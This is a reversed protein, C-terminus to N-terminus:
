QLGDLDANPLYSHYIKEFTGDKKMADLTSQWQLYVNKSTDKSISIYFYTQMVTFVPNIDDMAYGANQVIQSVTLDTFISLNADGKVLQKVNDEPSASSVLNAFGEDKLYQETFWDTTTAIAYVAKADDLSNVVIGAGSKAYFIASNKGVPGVWHFLKEREATRETSFLIVNPHLLAMNYANTWTTLRINAPINLRSAIERVMDTVFGSPQRDKMYTVPPYEETVLQFIGPPTEKPLWKAYISDFSGDRKMANLATQWHAVLDSSTNPSFAIYALDTSVIFVSEVTDASIGANEFLAPMAINSGIFLQVEKDLLKQLATQEDPCSVLNTFGADRLIQESYYDKVTAIADVKKADDLTKIEIGSGNLAYFNTDLATVPGVWQLLEKREANLVTTFLATNPESLVRNYAEEWSVVNIEGKTMTRKLLENVVETVQGTFNGDQTFNLPTYEESLITLRVSSGNCESVMMIVFWIYAMYKLMTKGGKFHIYQL